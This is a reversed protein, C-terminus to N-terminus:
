TAFLTTLCASRMQITHINQIWKTTTFISQAFCHILTMLFGCNKDIVFCTYFYKCIRKQLLEKIRLSFMISHMQDVEENKLREQRTISDIHTSFQGILIGIIVPGSLCMFICTLTEGNTSPLLDAGIIVITGYYFGLLYEEFISESYFITKPSDQDKPPIWSEEISV